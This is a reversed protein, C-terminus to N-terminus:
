IRRQNWGGEQNKQTLIICVEWNKEVDSNDVIGPVMFFLIFNSKSNEIFEIDKAGANM